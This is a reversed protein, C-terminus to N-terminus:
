STAERTSPSTTRCRAPIPRGSSRSSPSPRARMSRGSTARPPHTPSSVPERSPTLSVITANTVPTQEALVVDHAAVKGTNRVKITYTVIGGVEVVQRDATKTVHVEAVPEPDPNPPPTPTPPTPPTPEPTFTNTFTCDVRPNRPTLTVIVAGQSSGVLTGNCVVSTLAWGASNGRGRVGSGTGASRCHTRRTAAHSCPSAKSRSRPTRRTSSPARRTTQPYITFGVTGTSGYAIKRIVIAGVPVFVNEFRCAVGTGAVITVHGPSARRAFATASSARSSGDGATRRRCPRPSRTSAPRSPSRALRPCRRARGLRPRAPRFRREAAQRPPSRFHFTGVGGFTIKSLRAGVPPTQSDTYTCTVMDGAALTVATAATQLNTTTASAGTQSVCDIGQLHWGPPVEERFNWPADGPGTEARYFTTSAPAGNTVDLEFRRSANFTVNGDFPFTETAGAPHSVEKRVVITGSTPPPKVYYAFCFVHSAGSPYGIWEVNDGNLNDVACRLAAFGYQGPYVDDLIPDTPTGGQIWLSESSAALEEARRDAHDDDRGRDPPRHERGPREAAGDHEQDRDGDLVGGDRDLAIGM